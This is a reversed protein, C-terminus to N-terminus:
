SATVAAFRAPSLDAVEDPFRGHVVREAVADATLPALLVGNRGHGTAVHLGDAVTGVLPLGDPSAPRLGAATELLPADEIGPVLRWAEQLLTRVGGATVTTDPGVEETTAGIVVEGSSRAVLYVDLGRVVHRPLLSRRTAGLRLIQGKVPRIPLDLLRGSVWGACVVIHDALLHRGSALRAAGVDLGVVEDRLMTAGRASLATRLALLCRRPDVQHDSAAWLGARVTPALAPERRRLERSGLRETREGAAALLDALHDLVAVDAQDRAVALTGCREFGVEVGAETGLDEAFAPWRAAGMLHLGLVHPEGPQAETAPALMGAAVQAAARSPDPDVVTVHAGGQALRWATTCGIIGAGVVVVSPGSM